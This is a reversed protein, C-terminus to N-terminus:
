VGEEEREGWFGGREVDRGRGAGGYRTRRRICLYYFVVLAVVTFAIVGTMALVAKTTDAPHLRPNSRLGAYNLNYHPSMQQIIQNTTTTSSLTTPKLQKSLSPHPSHTNTKTQKSTTPQIPSVPISITPSLHPFFTQLPQYIPFSTPFPSYHGKHTM